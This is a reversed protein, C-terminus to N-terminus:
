ALSLEMKLIYRTAPEIKFREDMRHGVVWIIQERSLLIPCIKRDVRAIKADIFYKQVKQSGKMGLPTFRDGNQHNRLVLPFDLKEMDFFAREQGGMTLRSLDERKIVSFLLRQATEAILLSLSQVEPYPINYRYPCGKQPLHDHSIERLPQKEKSILLTPGRRSVRLRHPLHREGQDRGKFVLDMIADVHLYTIGNLNGNICELAGRIVRRFAAVHLGTLYAMSLLMHQKGTRLTAAALMDAAIKGLWEEEARSISATRVLAETLRPNYVDSLQPILEHRVRNRLFRTDQNSADSVFPLHNACIYSSIDRRRVDILPRVIRAKRAPPVGAIGGPGSGRLLNMMVLEASDDAHHGLAIKDFGHREATQEYFQYRAHRGAAEIGSGLNRRLADVDKTATYCPLDFEKALSMVFVADRDSADGRLGHNLHAIGLSLHLTASLQLLIHLLAVSDAGGSVGVLVADGQHFMQRSRITDAVATLLAHPKKHRKKEPMFVVLAM